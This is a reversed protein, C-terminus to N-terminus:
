DRNQTPSLDTSGVHIRVVTAEVSGRSLRATLTDGPKLEAANRIVPQSSTQVIAYGRDLTALPSVVNLSQGLHGLRESKRLLLREMSSFLQDSVQGLRTQNLGLQRGPSQMALRNRLHDLRVRERSLRNQTVTVLRSDLEDLRQAKEMLERRPDRLRAGLHGLQNELRRLTTQLSQALRAQQGELHRLWDHQDPSLKEAAASPTPARFDAVFDAITFDVEHGVASVTPLPCNAIARAVAEDNFCWLDELSGGGRGIILVDARGHQEARRIAVVIEGAAAAGQVVTPYVTVPISPFRRELVTLIDHIAAGTSSTVVGIHRPLTPVPKKRAPDFLGETQLKYKLEEFAQQLVGLGAPEIHEAIIQYDGRNEYLSVKGRIRVQDGEKPIGRIRQNFGKFMACRVQCKADKLTFYWHGSGPRSFSSLEGVVWAQM